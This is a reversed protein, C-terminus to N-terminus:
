TMILVMRKRLDGGAVGALCVLPSALGFEYVKLIGEAYVRGDTGWELIDEDCAREREEVLRAGLWWVLPHFWVVAEVIMHVASALNDRHRVHQVEHGLIGELQADDLHESIGEPWMLVPRLIGFVGPEIAHRSRRLEFRHGALIRPSESPAGSRVSKPFLPSKTGLAREMRRLATMSECFTGMKAIIPETQHNVPRREGSSTHMFVSDVACDCSRAVREAM